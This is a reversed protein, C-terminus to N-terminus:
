VLAGVWPDDGPATGKKKQRCGCLRHPLEGTDERPISPGLNSGQDSPYENIANTVGKDSIAQAFISRLGEAAAIMDGKNATRVYKTLDRRFARRTLLPHLWADTVAYPIPRKTM